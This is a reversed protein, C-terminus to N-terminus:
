VVSPASANTCKSCCVRGIMTWPAMPKQPHQRDLLQLNRRLRVHMGWLCAVGLSSWESATCIHIRGHSSNQRGGQWEGAKIHLPPSTCAGGSLEQGTKCVLLKRARSLELLTIDTLM